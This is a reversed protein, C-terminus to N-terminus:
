RSLDEKVYAVFASIDRLQSKDAKVVRYVEGRDHDWQEHNLTVPAGAPLWLVAGSYRSVFLFDRCTHDMGPWKRQFSAQSCVLLDDYPYDEPCTFTKNMSKVEVPLECADELNCPNGASVDLDWTNAYESLKEAGDALTFPHHVTYLGARSLIAGVWAEWFAAENAREMFSKSLGNNLRKSAAM